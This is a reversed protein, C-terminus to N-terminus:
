PSHPEPAELLIAPAAPPAAYTMVRCGTDANRTGPTSRYRAASRTYPAERLWSGGRLVRRPKDSLTANTQVPDSVPGPPYPGYWDRCWEFVNGGIYLGWPNPALSDVPHTQNWAYPQCWAIERVRSPDTGNHWATTTGARCAREWEAETPLLFKRGARRSLWDCFALADDYTIISAPQSGVQDFGPDQWTFRKDQRLAAGDWGFGGSTGREAETRYRTDKVFREFQALTVPFKGFYYDRTLTVARPTEDAGRGAETAPSGQQFEGAAVLVFELRVGDGLDVSLSKGAAAAMAASALWAWLVNRQM